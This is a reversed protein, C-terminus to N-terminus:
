EGDDAIDRAYSYRGVGTLKSPVGAKWQVAYDGDRGVIVRHRNIARAEGTTGLTQTLNAWAGDKLVAPKMTSISTGVVIGHVNVGLPQYDAGLDVIQYASPAGAFAQLSLCAFALATLSRKM